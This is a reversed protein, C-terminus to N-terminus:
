KRCIQPRLRCLLRMLRREESFKFILWSSSTTRKIFDEYGAAIMVKAAALIHDVVQDEGLQAEIQARQQKDNQFYEVVETPDEYLFAMDDIYAEVHLDVELKADALVKSVM